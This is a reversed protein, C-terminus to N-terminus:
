LHVGYGSETSGELWSDLNDQGCPRTVARPLSTQLSAQHDLGWRDSNDKVQEWAWLKISKKGGNYEKWCPLQVANELINSLLETIGAPTGGARAESATCWSWSQRPDAVRWARSGVQPKSGESAGQCGSQLQWSAEEGRRFRLERFTSVIAKIETKGLTSDALFLTPASFTLQLQLDLQRLPESNDEEFKQNGTM